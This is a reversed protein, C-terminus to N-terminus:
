SCRRPRTTCRGLTCRSRRKRRCLIPRACLSRQRHNYPAQELLAAPGRMKSILARVYDGVVSAQTRTRDKAATLATEIYKTANDWAGGGNNMLTRASHRHHDWGDFRRWARDSRFRMTRIPLCASVMGVAVPSAVGIRGAGGHGQAGVQLSTSARATIPDSTGQMIGPNAKFQRRVEEIVTQGRAWRRSPSCSFLFVADAGLLAGQVGCTAIDVSFPVNEKHLLGKV